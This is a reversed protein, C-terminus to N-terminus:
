PTTRDVQPTWLTITFNFDGVALVQGDKSFALSSVWDLGETLHNIETGTAIDWLRVGDNSGTALTKEDPSVAMARIRTSHGKLEYILQGTAIQWIKVTGDYSSTILKEGNDIFLLHNVAQKHPSFESVLQGTKINWFRVRGQNDGSAVIFGNPHIALSYTPNGYSAMTYLPRNPSLSFVKIGDLGGSVLVKSDPTIALSLVTNHHDLFTATYKGTPLNWINIAGDEGGSVLTQGDPSIILDKIGMRQARFHDIETGSNVWWVRLKPDNLGGGSMLMKSDNSFVLTNVTAKHGKLQRLTKTQSWINDSIPKFFDYFQNPSLIPINQLIPTQALSLKGFITTLLLGLSFIIIPNKKNMILIKNM